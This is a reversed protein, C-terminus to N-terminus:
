RAAGTGPRGRADGALAAPPVRDFRILELNGSRWAAARAGWRDLDALAPEFGDGPAPPFLHHVELLLWVRELGELRSVLEARRLEEVPYWPALRDPKDGFTLGLWPRPVPAARTEYRLQWAFPAPAVVLADTAPAFARLPAVFGATDAVEPAAPYLAATGRLAVAAVAALAAAFGPAGAVRRVACLAVGALLYGFPTTWIMPRVYFMPRVLSALYLLLPQGVAFVLVFALALPRRRLLWAGALPLAYLVPKSWRPCPYLGMLQSAVWRPSSEPIWFDALVSRCQEVTVALWPAYLAVIAANAPIWRYLFSVPLRRSLVLATVLVNALVVLLVATSHAYVAVTSAAVYGLWWRWAGAGARSASAERGADGDGDALGSAGWASALRALALLAVLSASTLLAYARAERGFFVHIESIATLACAVLAPGTGALRRGLAYVLPVSAVGFVLPLTRLAGPSDGLVLWARQLLYYLPPNTETRYDPGLLRAVPETAFAYTAYEDTSLVPWSLRFARLALAGLTLIGVLAWAVRPGPGANRSSM